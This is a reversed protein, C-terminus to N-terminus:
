INNQLIIITQNTPSWWTNNFYLKNIDLDYIQFCKKYGNNTFIDIVRPIITNVTRPSTSVNGYTQIVFYTPKVIEAINDITGVGSKQNELTGNQIVAAPTNGRNLKQFITTIETLKGMGM